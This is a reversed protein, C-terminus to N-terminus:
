GYYRIRAHYTLDTLIGTNNCFGILHLSNDAINAIDETTNTYHVSLPKGKWKYYMSWSRTAGERELNTGDWVNSAPPMDFRLTRLVQFRQTFELNQFVNTANDVVTGIGVFVDESNLQAGNTQKDLVLALFVAPPTRTATQNTALPITCVGRVQVATIQINRGIRNSPGAAEVVANLCKLVGAPDVEGGAATTSATLVISDRFTDYFKHELGIYGGTRRNMSAKRGTKRYSRRSAAASAYFSKGGGRRRFGSRYSMSHQKVGGQRARYNQNARTQTANNYAQTTWASPREDGWRQGLFYFGKNVHAPM